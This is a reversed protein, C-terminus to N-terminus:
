STNTHEGKKTDIHRFHLLIYRVPKYEYYQILRVDHTDTDSSLLQGNDPGNLINAEANTCIHQIQPTNTNYKSHLVSVLRDILLQVEVLHM